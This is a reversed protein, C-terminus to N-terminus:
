FMPFERLGNERKEPNRKPLMEPILPYLVPVAHLGNKRKKSKKRRLIV